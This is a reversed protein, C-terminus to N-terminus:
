CNITNDSFIYMSYLFGFDPKLFSVFQYEWPIGSEIM